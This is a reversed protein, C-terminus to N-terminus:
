CKDMPDAIVDNGMMFINVQFLITDALCSNLPQLHINSHQFASFHWPWTIGLDFIVTGTYMNNKLFNQLGSKATCPNLSTTIIPTVVPEYLECSHPGM